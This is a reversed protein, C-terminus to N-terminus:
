RFLAQRKYVDKKAECTLVSRVEVREIPSNEIIDAVVETIEDGSAVILEGTNPHYIDHVSVRGLIRESM